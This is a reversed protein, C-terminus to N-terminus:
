KRLDGSGAYASPAGPEGYNTLDALQKSQIYDLAYALAVMGTIIATPKAMRPSHVVEPWAREESFLVSWVSRSPGATTWCDKSPSAARSRDSMSSYISPAAPPCGCATPWPQISGKATYRAGIAAGSKAHEKAQRPALTTFKIGFQALIELAELDVATEPLWMGEPKRGFRHEFDRIGWIM